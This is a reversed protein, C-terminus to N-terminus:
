SGLRESATSLLTLLDDLGPDFFDPLCPECQDRLSNDQSKEFLSRIINTQQIEREYFLNLLEKYDVILAQLHALFRKM